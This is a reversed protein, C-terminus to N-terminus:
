LVGYISVTVICFDMTVVQPATATAEKSRAGNAKEEILKEDSRATQRGWTKREATTMVAGIVV